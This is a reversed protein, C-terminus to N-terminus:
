KSQSSSNTKNTDSSMDQGTMKGKTWEASNTIDKGMGSFTNCASLLLTVLVLVWNRKSALNKLTLM